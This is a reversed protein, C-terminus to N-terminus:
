GGDIFRKDHAQIFTISKFFLNDHSLALTLLKALINKGKVTKMEVLKPYKAVSLDPKYQVLDCNRRIVVLQKGKPSWDMAAVGAEPPLTLCDTLGAPSVTFLALRGDEWTVTFMDPIAPNWHVGTVKTPSMNLETVSLPKDNAQLGRTDYLLVSAFQGAQIVLSATLGDCSVGM